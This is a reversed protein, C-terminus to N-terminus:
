TIFVDDIKRKLVMAEDGESYVVEVVVASYKNAFSVLVDSPKKVLPFYQLKLLIVDGGGVEARSPSAVVRPIAPLYEFFSAVTKLTRTSEPMLGLPVVRVITRETLALRPVLVQITNASLMAYVPAKQLGFMVEVDTSSVLPEFDYLSIQVVSGGSRPASSPLIAASPPRLYSIVVSQTFASASRSGVMLTLEVTVFGSIMSAPMVVQVELRDGAVKIPLTMPLTNEARSLIEARVSGVNQPFSFIQVTVTTGGSMSAESPVAKARRVTYLFLGAVDVGSISHKGKVQVNGPLVTPPALVRLCTSVLNSWVVVREVAVGGFEIRVETASKTLPFNKIVIEILDGGGTNAQSPSLSLLPASSVNCPITITSTMDSPGVLELELQYACTSLNNGFSVALTAVDGKDYHVSFTGPISVQCGQLTSAALRTERMWNATKIQLSVADRTTFVTSPYVSTVTPSKSAVVELLISAADEPDGWKSNVFVELVGLTASAIVEFTFKTKTASSTLIQTNSAMGKDVDGIRLLLESAEKIIPMNKVEVFFIYNKGPIITNDSPNVAVIVPSGQVPAMYEYRFMAARSPLSTDRLEGQLICECGRGCQNCPLSKFTPMTFSIEVSTEWNAIATEDVMVPTGGLSLQFASASLLHNVLLSIMAVGKENTTTVVSSIELPPYSNLNICLNLDCAYGVSGADAVNAVWHAGQLSCFASTDCAAFYLFKQTFEFGNRHLM